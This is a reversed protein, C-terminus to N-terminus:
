YKYDDKIQKKIFDEKDPPMKNRIIEGLTGDDDIFDNWEQCAEWAKEAVDRLHQKEYPLLVTLTNRFQTLMFKEGDTLQWKLQIDLEAIAKEIPTQEKPVGIQDSLIDRQIRILQIM